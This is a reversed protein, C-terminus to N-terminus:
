YCYQRDKYSSTVTGVMLGSVILFGNLVENEGVFAKVGFRTNNAFVKQQEVEFSLLDDEFVQGTIEVDVQALM